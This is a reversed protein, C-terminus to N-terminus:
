GRTATGGIGSERTSDISAAAVALGLASVMSTARVAGV